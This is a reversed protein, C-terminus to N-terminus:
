ALAATRTRIYGALEKGCTLRFFRLYNPVGRSDVSKAQAGKELLARSIKVWNIIKAADVTGSHHRFELTGHRWLSAPNVKFYRHSLLREVDQRTRCAVFAEVTRVADGMVNLSQCFTNSSGRRSTPLMGDFWSEHKVYLALVKGIQAISLDEAYHHVHLGCQRDVTAGLENLVQCVTEIEAFSAGDFTMPPSVLEWGGPVSADSVIKWHSRTTHNYGEWLTQIGAATMAHAIEVASKTSKFEIEIGFTRNAAFSETAEFEATTSM